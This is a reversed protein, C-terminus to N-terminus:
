RFVRTSLPGASILNDSPTTSDFPKMIGTTCIPCESETLFTTDASFTIIGGFLAPKAMLVPYKEIFKQNPEILFEQSDSLYDKDTREVLVDVIIESKPSMKSPNSIKIFPSFPGASILNDSPTTSDFPKM